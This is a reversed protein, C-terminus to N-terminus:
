ERRCTFPHRQRPRDRFLRHRIRHQQSRDPRRDQRSRYGGRDARKRFSARADAEAFDANRGFRYLGTYPYAAAATALTAGITM